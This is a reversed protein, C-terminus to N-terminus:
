IIDSQVKDAFGDSFYDLGDVNLLLFINVAHLLLMVQLVMRQSIIILFYIIERLLQILEYSLCVM